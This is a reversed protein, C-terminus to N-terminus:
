LTDALLLLLSEKISIWKRRLASEVCRGKPKALLPAIVDRFKKGLTININDGHQYKNLHANAMVLLKKFTKLDAKTGVETNVNKRKLLEWLGETGRFTTVKFTFNDDPVILVPFHGIM